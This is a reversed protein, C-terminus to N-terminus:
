NHPPKMEGKNAAGALKLVCFGPSGYWDTQTPAEEAVEGEHFSGARLALMGPKLCAPVPLCVCVSMCVHLCVDSVVPAPLMCLCVYM